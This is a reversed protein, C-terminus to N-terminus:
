DNCPTSTATSEVAGRVTWPQPGFLGRGPASAPNGQQRVPRDARVSFSRRESVPSSDLQVM